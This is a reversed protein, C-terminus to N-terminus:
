AALVVRDRGQRKANYVAADATELLRRAGQEVGQGHGPPLSGVGISVTLCIDEGSGTPIPQERISACIREAILAAGAADTAPLLVAFEEGGYRTAIDSARLHDRLYGALRVLVLDGVPHGHRDNIRKFHDADVFLCSLPHGYRQARAVEDHLRQDLYRRNFLGTLSDTLGTLRLRERNVANELCVAAIAALRGLFDTAHESTFREPANAALGLFGVLGDTRRLPLVAVSGFPRSFLWGHREAAWPGLCPTTAERFRRPIEPPHEVLQLGRMMEAEDAGLMALLEAIVRHPDLLVLRTEDLTFSVRMDDVLRALLTRLDPASLLALERQHCRAMVAQNHNADATLGRILKLLQHTSTPKRVQM